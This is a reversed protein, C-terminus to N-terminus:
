RVHRAATRGARKEPAISKTIWYGNIMQSLVAQPPPSAPAIPPTSTTM